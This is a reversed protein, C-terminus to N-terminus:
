IKFIGHHSECSMFVVFSGSRQPAFQGMKLRKMTRLDWHPLAPPMARFVAKYNIRRHICTVPVREKYRVVAYAYVAFSVHKEIRKMRM